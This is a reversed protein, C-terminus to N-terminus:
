FITSSHQRIGSVTERAADFAVAPKSGAIRGRDDIQEPALAGEVGIGGDGVDGGAGSQEGFDKEGGSEGNGGDLGVVLHASGTGCELRMIRFQADEFSRGFGGVRGSWEM